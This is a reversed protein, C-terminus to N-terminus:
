PIVRGQADVRVRRTTSASNTSPAKPLARGSMQQVGSLAQERAKRKQDIVKPGDGPVPFYTKIEQAMEEPAIVAGSEKRLKARVWDAAAQYYNQADPSMVTNAVSSRVPGGAMLQDAAMYDRLSPTFDGLLSEAARMREAYNAANREGETPIAGERPAAPPKGVAQSRPVYASSGDPLQVAVLPEQPPPNVMASRKRLFTLYDKEGSAKWEQIMSADSGSGSEAYPSRGIADQEDVYEGGSGDARMVALPKRVAPANMKQIQAEMYRRQIEEQQQQMQQKAREAALQQSQLLSLGAARGFNGQNSNSMLLAGFNLLGQSQEPTMNGLLGGLKGLM